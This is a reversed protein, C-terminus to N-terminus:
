SQDVYAFEISARQRAEVAADGAVYGKGFPNIPQCGERLLNLQATGQALTAPNMTVPVRTGNPGPLTVGLSSYYADYSSFGMIYARYLERLQGGGVEDSANIRCVVTGTAPDYVADTAMVFRFSRQIDHRIQERDSQGLQVSADWTWRSDSGFLPGDASLGLSFSDTDSTVRRNLWDGQNKQINIGQVAPAVSVSPFGFATNGCTLYTTADQGAPTTTTGTNTANPNAIAGYSLSRDELVQRMQDSVPHPARPDLFGNLTPGM